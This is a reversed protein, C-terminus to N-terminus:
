KTEQWIQHANIIASSFGMLGVLGENLKVGLEASDFAVMMDCGYRVSDLYLRLRATYLTVLTKKLEDIDKQQQKAQKYAVVQAQLTLHTNYLQYVSLLFSCLCGVFWGYSANITTQKKDYALFKARILYGVNDLFWYPIFAVKGIINLYFVVSDPDPQKLLKKISEYENFSKGLRWLKRGTSTTSYLGDFRQGLKSKPDQSLLYWKIARSGYQIAKCFKDRGKSGDLFKNFKPLFKLQKDAEKSEKSM